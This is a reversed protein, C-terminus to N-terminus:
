QSQCMCCSHKSQQVNELVKAELMKAEAGKNIAFQVESGIFWVCKIFLRGEKKEDESMDQPYCVIKILFHQDFTLPTCNGAYLDAFSMEWKADDAWIEWEIEEMKPYFFFGESFRTKNM